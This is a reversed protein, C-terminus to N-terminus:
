VVVKNYHYKVVVKDSGLLPTSFEVGTDVLTYDGEDQLVGNRFVLLHYGSLPEEELVVLENQATGQHVVTTPTPVAYGEFFSPVVVYPECEESPVHYKEYQVNGYLYTKNNADDVVATTIGTEKTIPKVKPAGSCHGCSQPKSCRCNLSSTHSM